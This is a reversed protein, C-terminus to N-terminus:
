VMGRLMKLKKAIEERDVVGAAVELVMAEWADIAFATIGDDSLLESADLFAFCSALAVCKNGDIFAHICAYDPSIRRLLKMFEKFLPRGRMTAKPAAVASELLAEDLLGLSGGHAALANVHIAKVAEPALHLWERM